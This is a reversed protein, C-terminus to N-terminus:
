GITGSAVSGYLVTTSFVEELLIRGMNMRDTLCLTPCSRALYCLLRYAGHKGTKVSRFGPSFSFPFHWM